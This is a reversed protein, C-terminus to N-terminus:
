ASGIVKAVEVWGLSPALYNDPHAVEPMLSSTLGSTSNSHGRWVCVKWHSPVKILIKSSRLTTEGDAAVKCRKGMLSGSIDGYIKMGKFYPKPPM